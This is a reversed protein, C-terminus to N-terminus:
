VSSTVDARRTEQPAYPSPAQPAHSCQTTTSKTQKPVPVLRCHKDHDLKMGVVLARPSLDGSVGDLPLFMNLWFASAHAMEITM